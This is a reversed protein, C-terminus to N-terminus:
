PFAFMKAEKNGISINATKEIPDVLYGSEQIVKVKYVGPSVKKEYFSNGDISGFYSGEFFLKYSDSSKNIYRIVGDNVSEDEFIKNCSFLTTSLLLAAILKSM